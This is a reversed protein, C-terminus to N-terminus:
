LGFDYGAFKDDQDVACDSLNEHVAVWRIGIRCSPHYTGQESTRLIIGSTEVTPSRSLRGFHSRSRGFMRVGSAARSIVRDIEFIGVARTFRARNYTTGQIAVSLM